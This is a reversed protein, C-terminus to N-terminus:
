SKKGNENHKMIEDKTERILKVIDQVDKNAMIKKVVFKNVMFGMVVASITTGLVYIALTLFFELLDM